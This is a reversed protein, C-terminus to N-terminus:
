KIQNKSDGKEFSKINDITTRIISEEAETSYFALHPSVIVNPLNILLHDQLILKAEDSTLRNSSLLEIEEKLGREEELVDLAAGALHNTKLATFLAATDILAGRSTNVVYSGQKMLSLNSENIMHHNEQTYPVHLTVVDSQTLLDNLSVYKFGLTTALTENPFKDFAVVNMEFGNAIKIVNAGIKGTGIVGLTKGYLDSGKLGEFSFVGEQKTRRLAEPLKRTLNLLLGFTFEAVTHSGYSPVNFVSINKSKAYNVDVHDYGTSRTNISKLNSYADIVPQDIKSEIFVSIVDFDKQETLTTQNLPNEFFFLNHDTLQSKLLDIHSPDKIEFFAINM